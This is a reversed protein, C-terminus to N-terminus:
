RTERGALVRGSQKSKKIQVQKQIKLKMEEVGFKEANECIEEKVEEIGKTKIREERKYVEKRFTEEAEAIVEKAKDIAEQAREQMPAEIVM